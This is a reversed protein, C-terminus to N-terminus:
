VTPSCCFCFGAALLRLLYCFFFFLVLFVFTERCTPTEEFAEACKLLSFDNPDAAVFTNPPAAVDSVVQPVCVAVFVLSQFLGGRPM